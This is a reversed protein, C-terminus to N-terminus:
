TIADFGTIKAAKFEKLVDESVILMPERGRGNENTPVPMSILRETSAFSVESDPPM